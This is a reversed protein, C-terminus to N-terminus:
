RREFVTTEGKRDFTLVLYPQRQGGPAEMGPSGLPMGPVAIGTVTLPREKLLRHVTEAPIHGEVVYRGVQATHCSGLRPPVAYKSKIATLDDLDHVRAEFGNARMHDVWKACCGCTPTKYVTLLPKPAPPRQRAAPTMTALVSLVLALTAGTWPTPITMARVLRGSTALWAYSARVTLARCAITRPVKTTFGGRGASHGKM